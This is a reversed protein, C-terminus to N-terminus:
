VDSPVEYVNGTRHHKKICGLAGLVSIVRKRHHQTLDGPRKELAGVWVALSSVCVDPQKRLWVAIADTWADEEVFLYESKVRRREEDETLWWQEGANFAALAEGWLQDRAETLAEVDVGGAQVPWFRRSGTSDRLFGLENTTGVIVCQRESRIVNRGFSPRFRDVRSSLFAKVATQEARRVADLEAFEYVWVGRIVQMADKDRLNVGTDSFWQSGCLVEFATSKKAGQKGQIILTTDVKCGPRMVRAVASIMWRRSYARVITKDPAGCYETLWGDLRKEGDWELAELYARVPHVSHAEAVWQLAQCATGVPVQIQYHRDLWGCAMIEDVDRMPAGDLLIDHSFLDMKVRGAWHPDLRYVAEANVLSSEPSTVTGDAKTKLRLEAWVKADGGTPARNSRARTIAVRMQDAAGGFGRVDRIEDLLEEVGECMALASILPQNRVAARMKAPKVEDATISRHLEELETLAEDLTMLRVGLEDAMARAKERDM